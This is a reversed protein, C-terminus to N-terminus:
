EGDKWTNDSLIDDFCPTILFVCLSREKVQAIQLESLLRENEIRLAEIDGAREGLINRLEQSTEREAWLETFFRDREAQLTGSVINLDRQLKDHLMASAEREELVQRRLSNEVARLTEM